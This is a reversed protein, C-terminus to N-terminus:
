SLPCGTGSRDIVCASSISAQPAVVLDPWVRRDGEAFRLQVRILLPPAPRDIWFRQWRPEGSVPDPGFYAVEIGQVGALLRTPQWGALSPDGIEVREELASASYLTLEGAPNLILRFNRLAGPGERELPPAVFSFGHADGRAEVIPQSALVPAVASMREFRDRLIRQAAIVEDDDVPAVIGPAVRASVHLSAGLLGAALGLVGLAVLVEALTFGAEGAGPARAPLCREAPM